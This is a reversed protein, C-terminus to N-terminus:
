ILTKYMIIENEQNNDEDFVKEEEEEGVIEYLRCYNPIKRRQLPEHDIYLSM